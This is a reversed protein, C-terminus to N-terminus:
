RRDISRRRSVGNKLHNCSDCAGRVLRPSAVWKSIAAREPVSQLRKLDRGALQKLNSLLLLTIAGTNGWRLTNKAAVEETASRM